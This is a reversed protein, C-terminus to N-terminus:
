YSGAPSTEPGFRFPEEGIEYGPQLAVNIMLGAALATALLSSGGYSVFPLTLGTIPM